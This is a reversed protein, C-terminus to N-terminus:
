KASRVMQLYKEMHYETAFQDQIPYAIAQFAAIDMDEKNVITAGDDICKQKSVNALKLVSKREVDTAYNTAEQIWQQQQETLSNFYNGNMLLLRTTYDHDTECINHGNKTKHHDKLSFNTYDNEASDVVGQQLAQYLEGWAVSTPIAGCETWFQQQVPSSQIRITLGKLDSPKYIVKKGYYDRVGASWYNMIKFDNNTKELILSNLSSGFEGDLCTEWHEFSDFLYELSFINVEPVGASVMFGPSAVVISAAGLQLKEVLESESEGLTGNYCTATVSGNSLEEVKEKFAKIGISYPNEASTQNQAIILNLPGEKSTEAVGNTFAFSAACLMVVSLTFLKKM